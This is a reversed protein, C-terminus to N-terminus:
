HQGGKPKFEALCTLDSTLEKRDGFLRSIRLHLQFSMTRQGVNQPQHSIKDARTFVGLLAKRQEREALM